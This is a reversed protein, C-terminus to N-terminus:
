EGSDPNPNPETPPEPTPESPTPPVASSEASADTSSTPGQPESDEASKGSTDPTEPKPADSESATPSSPEASPKSTTGSSQRPTNDSPKTGPQPRGTRPRPGPKGPTRPAPKPVSGEAPKSSGSDPADDKPKEEGKFKDAKAEKMLKVLQVLAQTMIQQSMRDTANGSSVQDFNHQVTEVANRMGKSKESEEMKDINEKMTSMLRYMAASMETFSQPDIVKDLSAFQGSLNDLQGALESIDGLARDDDPVIGAFEPGKLEKYANEIETNISRIREVESAVVEKMQADDLFDVPEGGKKPTKSWVGRNYTYNHENAEIPKKEDINTQMEEMSQEVTKAPAAEEKVPPKYGNELAKALEPGPAPPSMRSLDVPANDKFDKGDTVKDRYKYYDGDIPIPATPNKSGRYASNWLARVMAPNLDYTKKFQKYAATEETETGDKEEKKTKVLNGNEDFLRDEWNEDSIGNHSGVLIQSLRAQFHHAEPIMSPTLVEGLFRKQSVSMLNADTSFDWGDEIDEGKENKRNQKYVLSRMAHPAVGQMFARSGRKRAEGKVEGIREDENMIRYKGTKADLTAMTQEWHGVNRSSQSITYMTRLATQEEHSAKGANINSEKTARKMYASRQKADKEPDLKDYNVGEADAIKKAITTPDFKARDLQLYGMTFQKFGEDDMVKAKEYSDFGFQKATPDDKILGSSLFHAYVDDLNGRSAALNIVAERSREGKIGGMRMAREALEAMKEKGAGSESIEKLMESEYEGVVASRAMEARSMAAGKASVKLNGRKQRFFSPIWEDMVKEAMQEGKGAIERNQQTALREGRQGIGKWYSPSLIPAKETIKRGIAGYTRKAFRNNFPKKLTKMGMSKLKDPFRGVTSGGMVGFEQTLMIGTLLLAITIIYNFMNQTNMIASAGKPLKAADPATPDAITGDSVGIDSLDIPAGASTSIVSLSLWLFFALVPGATLNKGLETWWRSAYRSTNPLVSAIYAVPSLIVLIWIMLIRAVLIVLMALLVAIAVVLMGNALFIAMIVSGIGKLENVFGKTDQAFSTMQALNLGVTLVIAASDQFSYVFTLMIVQSFDVFIGTITKSFNILVAMIIMKTLLSRAHYQQLKMITGFAIVILIVIFMMNSLDRIITWGIHVAPPAKMNVFNNYSFIKIVLEIIMGLLSGLLQMINAGFDGIAGIIAESVDFGALAESKEPFILGVFVLVGLVGLIPLLAKRIRSLIKRFM